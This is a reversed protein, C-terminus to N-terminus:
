GRSALQRATKLHRLAAMKQGAAEYLRALNYHADAYGPHRAIAVSYAAVADQWRKQDELVTGLNYAAVAHDPRIKLAARYHEEAGELERREQLLRGLNVHADAHGPQLALVKRYAGVARRPEMEELDCGLDYWEDASLGDDEPVGFPAGATAAERPHELAERDFDLLVQGSDPQWRTGGERVVVRDGDATIRVASLPKDDPLQARLRQLAKRIRAAPVDAGLLGKATRLLAVDQFSFRAGGDDARGSAPFTARVLVRLQAPTVDLLTAVESATHGEPM